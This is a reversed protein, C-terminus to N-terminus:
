LYPYFAEKSHWWRFWLFILPKIYSSKLKNNKIYKKILARLMKMYKLKDDNNNDTNFAMCKDFAEKYFESGKPAKLVGGNPVYPLKICPKKSFLEKQLFYPEKFDFRKIAIMDLWGLGKTMFYNIDGLMLLTFVFIEFLFSCKLYYTKQKKLLVKLFM